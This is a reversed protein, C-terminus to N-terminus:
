FFSHHFGEFPSSKKSEEIESYARERMQKKFCNPCMPLPITEWSGNEIRIKLVDEDTLIAGCEVCKREKMM